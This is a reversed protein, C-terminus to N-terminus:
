LSYHSLRVFVCGSLLREASTFTQNVFSTLSSHEPQHLCLSQFFGLFRNLLVERFACM